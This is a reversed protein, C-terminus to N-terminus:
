TILMANSKHSVMHIGDKPLAHCQHIVMNNISQDGCNQGRTFILEKNEFASVTGNFVARYSEYPDIDKWGNPWVQESFESHYPPAITAPFAIDGKDTAYSVFLSYHNLDIVDKAAAAAKAWKSEDYSDPLLRNGQDDIM